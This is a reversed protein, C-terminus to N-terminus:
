FIDGYVMLHLIILVYNKNLEIEELTITNM